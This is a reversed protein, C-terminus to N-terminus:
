RSSFWVGLVPMLFFFIFIVAAFSRAEIRRDHAQKADERIVM